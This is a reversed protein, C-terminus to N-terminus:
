VNKVSGRSPKEIWQEAAELNRKAHELQTILLELQGRTLQFWLGKIFDTDLHAVVVPVALSVRGEKFGLRVDTTAALSEFSPLVEVGIRAREVIVALADRDRLIVQALAVVAPADASELFQAEEAAKM